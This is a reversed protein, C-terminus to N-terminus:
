WHRDYLAPRDSTFPQRIQGELPPGETSRPVGKRCKLAPPKRSKGQVQEPFGRFGRVSFHGLVACASSQVKDQCRSIFPRNRLLAWSIPAAM